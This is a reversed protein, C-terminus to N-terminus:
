RRAKKRPASRRVAKRAAPRKAAATKKARSRPAVKKARAAAARKAPARKAKRAPAKRKAPPHGSVEEIALITMDELVEDMPGWIAQVKADHHAKSSAAEDVWYFREVFSIKGSRKDSARWVRAPENTALGAARVAPWHKKVLELLDNERGEKPRYIVINGVTAM